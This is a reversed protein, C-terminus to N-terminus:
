RCYTMDKADVCCDCKIDKTEYERKHEANKCNSRKRFNAKEVRGFADLADRLCPLCPYTIGLKQLRFKSSWTQDTQNIKEITCKACTHM